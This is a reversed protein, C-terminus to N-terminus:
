REEIIHYKKKGRLYAARADLKNDYYGLNVKRDNVEIRALWPNNSNGKRWSFGVAKYTNFNNEQHTVLRLNEIRNDWTVGNIHDVALTQDMDKNHFLYVLRHEYYKHKSYQYSIRRKIYGKAGSAALKKTPNDKRKLGGNIDDYWFIKRVWKYSIVRPVERSPTIRGM